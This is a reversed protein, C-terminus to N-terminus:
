VSRRNENGLLAVVLVMFPVVLMGPEFPYGMVRRTVEFIGVVMVTLM